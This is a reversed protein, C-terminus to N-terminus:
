VSRDANSHSAQSLITFPSTSYAYGL